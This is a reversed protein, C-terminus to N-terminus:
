SVEVIAYIIAKYGRAIIEDRQQIAQEFTLLKDAPTFWAPNESGLQIGYGVSSAHSPHKTQKSAQKSQEHDEIMVTSSFPKDAGAQKIISALNNM